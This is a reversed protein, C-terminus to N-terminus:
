WSRKVHDQSGGQGRHFSNRAKLDPVIGSLISRNTRSPKELRTITWSMLTWAEAQSSVGHLDYNIYYIGCILEWKIPRM